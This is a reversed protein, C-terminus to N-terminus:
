YERKQADISVSIKILLFTPMGEGAVFRKQVTFYPLWILDYKLLHLFFFVVLGRLPRGVTGWDFRATTSLVRSLKKQFAFDFSEGISKPALIKEIITEYLSKKKYIYM